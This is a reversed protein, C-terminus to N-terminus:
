WTNGPTGFIWIVLQIVLFLLVVLALGGVVLWLASFPFQTV